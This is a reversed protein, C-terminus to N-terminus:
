SARRRRGKRTRAIIADIERGSLRDLGRKKAEARIERLASLARARRVTEVTAPLSDEDVSLMLAVPKGNSTLVAEGEEALARQAQRPRTRLDRITLNKMPFFRIVRSHCNDGPSTYSLLHMIM